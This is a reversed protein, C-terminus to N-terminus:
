EHVIESLFIYFNPTQGKIKVELKYKANTFHLATQTRNGGGMDVLKMYM